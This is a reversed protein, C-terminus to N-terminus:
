GWTAYQCSKLRQFDIELLSPPLDCEKLEDPYSWFAPWDAPTKYKRKTRHQLFTDVIADASDLKVIQEATRKRKQNENWNVQQQLQQLQDSTYHNYRCNSGYICEQGLLLTRCTKKKSSESIIQKADQFSKYHEARNRQHPIGDNHKKVIVPDREIHRDCYDCYYKRGM